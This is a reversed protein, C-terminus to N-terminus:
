KKEHRTKYPTKRKANPRYIRMLVLRVEHGTGAMHRWAAATIRKHEARTLVDAARQSTHWGCQGCTAYDAFTRAM